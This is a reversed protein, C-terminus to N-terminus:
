RPEEYAQLRAALAQLGRSDPWRHLAERARAAAGPRDGTKWLLAIRQRHLDPEDPQLSLAREAAELAEATLDADQLAGSMAGWARGDGPHLNVARRAATLAAETAGTTRLMAVLNIWVALRDPDATAIRQLLTVAEGPPLLQIILASDLGLAGFGGDSKEAAARALQFSKSAEDAQGADFQARGLHLRAAIDDPALRCAEAFTGVAEAPRGQDLLTCGLVDHGPAYAPDLEVARRAATEADAFRELERLSLGLNAAQRAADTRDTLWGAGPPLYGPHPARGLLDHHQGALERAVALFSDPRQGPDRALCRRILRSLPEPVEPPLDHQGANAAPRRTLCQWLTVGFAYMDTATTRPARGNFEPGVYGATHSGSDLDREELGRAFSIGFDTLKAAGNPHLLINAPKLDGHVLGCRREGHALAAAVQSGTRLALPWGADPGLIADVLTASGPVWELVLFLRGGFREIGLAQVLHPHAGLQIWRNAETAMAAAAAPDRLVHRRPSKLAFRQGTAPHTCVAVRGFGGEHIEDIRYAEGLTSGITWTEEAGILEDISAAPVIDGGFLQAM